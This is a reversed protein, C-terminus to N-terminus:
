YDWTWVVRGDVTDIIDIFTYSKRLNILCYRIAESMRDASGILHNCYTIAFRKASPRKLGFHIM